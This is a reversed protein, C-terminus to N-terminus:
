ADLELEVIDRVVGPIGVNNDISILVFVVVVEVVVAVGVAIGAVNCKGACRCARNGLTSRHWCNGCVWVLDCRDIRPSATRARMEGGCRGCLEMKSLNASSLLVPCRVM